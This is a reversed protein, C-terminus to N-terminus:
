TRSNQQVIRAKLMEYDAPDLNDKLFELDNLTLTLRGGSRQAPGGTVQLGLNSELTRSLNLLDNEVSMVITRLAQSSIAIARKGFGYIHSAMKVSVSLVLGTIYISWKAMQLCRTPNKETRLYDVQIAIISTLLDRTSLAVEQAYIATRQSNILTYKRVETYILNLEVQASKTMDKLVSSSIALLSALLNSVIKYALYVPAILILRL